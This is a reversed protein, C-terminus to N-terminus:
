KVHKETLVSTFHETARSLDKKIQKSKFSWLKM